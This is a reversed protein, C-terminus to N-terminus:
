GTGTLRSVPFPLTFDAFRAVYDKICIWTQVGLGRLPAVYDAICIWTQVGLGRLPCCLGCHLDWTQVGLGRLPRCFLAQPALGLYRIVFTIQARSAPSLRM